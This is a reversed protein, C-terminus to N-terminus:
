VLCGVENEEEILFVFVIDFTAHFEEGLAIGVNMRLLSVGEEHFVNGIFQTTIVRQVIIEILQEGTADV